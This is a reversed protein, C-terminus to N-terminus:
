ERRLGKVRAALEKTRKRIENLAEELTTAINIPDARQAERVAFFIYDARNRTCNYVIGKSNDRVVYLLSRSFFEFRLVVRKWTTSAEEATNVKTEEQKLIELLGIEAEKLAKKKDQEERQEVHQRKLWM